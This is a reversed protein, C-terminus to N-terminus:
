ATKGKNKKEFALLMENWQLAEEATLRREQQAAVYVDVIYDYEM